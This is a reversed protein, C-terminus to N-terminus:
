SITWGHKYNSLGSIQFMRLEVQEKTRSEMDLGNASKAQEGNMSREQNERRKGRNKLVKSIM